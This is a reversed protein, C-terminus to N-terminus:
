IRNYYSFNNSEICFDSFKLGWINKDISVVSEGNKILQSCLNQGIFGQGGFVINKKM